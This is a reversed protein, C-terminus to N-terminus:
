TKDMTTITDILLDQANINEITKDKLYCYSDRFATRM